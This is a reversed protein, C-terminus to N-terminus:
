RGTRSEPEPEAMAPRREPSAPERRCIPRRDAPRPAPRPERRVPAVTVAVVAHGRAVLDKWGVGPQKLNQVAAQKADGETSRVTDVLIAGRLAVAYATTM